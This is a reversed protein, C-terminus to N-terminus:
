KIPTAEEEGAIARREQCQKVKRHAPNTTRRTVTTWSIDAENDHETTRAANTGLHDLAAAM